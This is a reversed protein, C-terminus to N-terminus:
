PTRPWNRPPARGERLARLTAVLDMAIVLTDPQDDDLLRRMRSRTDEALDRAEQPTGVARLSAAANGASVLTSPHDDGLVRRRRALVDEGLQPPGADPQPGSTRRERPLLRRGERM